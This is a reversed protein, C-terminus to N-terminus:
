LLELGFAFSLLYDLFTIISAINHTSAKSISNAARSHLDSMYEEIEKGRVGGLGYLVLSPRVYHPV